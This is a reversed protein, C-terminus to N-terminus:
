LHLPDVKIRAIDLGEASQNRARQFIQSLVATALSHPIRMVVSVEGKPLLKPLSIAVERPFNRTISRVAPDAGSIEVAKVVPPLLLESREALERLGIDIPNWRILSQINRNSGESDIFLAGGPRLMTAIGFWRRRAEEEADLTARELMMRSNCIIVAAYGDPVHPEAGPTAIVIVPNSGLELLRHDKNSYVISQNPFAKGLEEVIRVDGIQHYRLQRGSCYPCSWLNHVTGCLNCEPNSRHERWVLKGGCGCLARNRCTSCLLSQIYGKMPVQVLVPGTNLGRKVVQWAKTPFRGSESPSNRDDVALISVQASPKTLPNRTLLTLYRDNLYRIATLSPAACGIILHTRELHSKMIAVERAHFYPTRQECYSDSGEDWLVILDLNHIPLFLAGRVGIVIVEEESLIHLFTMEREARSMQSHWILIARGTFRADEQLKKHMRDVDVQDPLLLLSSRKCRAVLDLLFNFPDEAPNANWLARVSHHEKPNAALASWFSEPYREDSENSSSQAAPPHVPEQIGEYVRVTKGLAPIAFRLSDWMTGGYYRKIERALALMNVSVLPYPRVVESIFRLQGRFSSSEERSTVVGLVRRRNFPVKVVSGVAIKASFEEPILFDFDQDLHLLGTDVLVRAIPLNSAVVAPVAEVLERKLQLPKM